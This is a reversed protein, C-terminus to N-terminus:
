RLKAGGRGAFFICSPVDPHSEGPIQPCLDAWAVPITEGFHMRFLLKDLFQPFSSGNRQLTMVLNIRRGRANFAKVYRDAENDSAIWLLKVNSECCRQLLETGAIGNVNTGTILGTSSVNGFLHIIDYQRSLAKILEDADAFLTAVTSSYFRKYIPSDATVFKAFEAGLGCVM